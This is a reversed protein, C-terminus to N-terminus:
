RRQPRPAPTPAESARPDSAGAGRIATSWLEPDPVRIRLGFLGSGGPAGWRVELVGVQGAGGGIEVSTIRELAIRYERRPFFREFVLERDTLLLSGRGPLAPAGLAEELSARPESLLARRGGPTFGDIPGAGLRIVRRIAVAFGIVMAALPVLVLVVALPTM